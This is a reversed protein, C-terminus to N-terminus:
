VENEIMQVLEKDSPDIIVRKIVEKANTTKNIGLKVQAFSGEGLSKEIKYDDTVKRETNIKQFDRRGFTRRFNDVVLSRREPRDLDFQHKSCLKGM